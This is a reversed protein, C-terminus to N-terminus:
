RQSEMVPEKPPCPTNGTESCCQPNHMMDWGNMWGWGKGFRPQKINLGRPPLDPCVKDGTEGRKSDLPRATKHKTVDGRLERSRLSSLRPHRHRATGARERRQSAATHAAGGEEGQERTAVRATVINLSPRDQSAWCVCFHSSLGGAWGRCPLFAYGPCRHAEGSGPIHGDERGRTRPGLWGRLPRLHGQCCGAGASPGPCPQKKMGPAPAEGPHRQPSRPHTQERGRNQPQPQEGPLQCCHAVQGCPQTPPRACCPVSM